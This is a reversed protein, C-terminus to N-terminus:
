QHTKVGQSLKEQFLEIFAQRQRSFNIFAIFLNNFLDFSDGYTSFFKNMANYMKNPTTEFRRLPAIDESM